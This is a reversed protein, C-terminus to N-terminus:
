FFVEDDTTVPVQEWNQLNDALALNSGDRKVSKLRIRTVFSDSPGQFGPRRVMLEIVPAPLDRAEGILERTAEDTLQLIVFAWDPDSHIIRGKTGPSIKRDSESVVSRGSGTEVPGSRLDIYQKELIAYQKKLDEFNERATGLETEMEVLRDNLDNKERELQTIKRNLDNKEGELRRVDAELETIRRLNQRRQRKENNLDRITASLEGRVKTLESRTRNLTAYQANARDQVTKLLEAMTGPGDRRPAGTLPDKEVNGLGDVYYYQRLKLRNQETSLNMTPTGIVELVNNYSDWFDSTNPVDIMRDSVSDVDKAPHDAVGDFVPDKEEFTGALRIIRDELDHARGILMEKKRFNLIGLVLAAISFLFIFVVLVKLLKGM